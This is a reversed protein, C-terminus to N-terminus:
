YTLLLWTAFRRTTVSERSDEHFSKCNFTFELHLGEFYVFIHWALAWLAPIRIMMHRNSTPCVVLCRVTGHDDCLKLVLYIM